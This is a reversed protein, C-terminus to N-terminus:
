NFTEGHHYWFTYRQIIGYALLHGHVLERNGFEVNLCKVCPCRISETGLKTFAYDLFSEVGKEYEESLHDDINMWDKNPAM